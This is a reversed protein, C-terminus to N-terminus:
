NNLKRQIGAYADDLFKNSIHFKLGSKLGVWDFDENKVLDWLLERGLISECEIKLPVVRSVMEITTPSILWKFEGPTWQWLGSLLM